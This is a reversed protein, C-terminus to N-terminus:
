EPPDPFPMWHTVRGTIRWHTEEYENAEYWGPEVYWVDDKETCGAWPELEPDLEVTNEAAYFARLRRTVDAIRVFVLVYECPEPMREVVAIWRCM